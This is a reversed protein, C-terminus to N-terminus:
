NTIEKLFDSATLIRTNKYKKLKLMEKDGTIIITCDGALATELIRNDPEDKLVHLTELPYIVQFNSKIKKDVQNLKEKSFSFKRYLVELIENIIQPSIYTNFKKKLILRVIKEPNGGFVISSVIINTDLVINQPNDRTASIM